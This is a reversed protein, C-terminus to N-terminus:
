VRIGACDRSDYPGPGTVSIPVIQPRRTTRLRRIVHQPFSPSILGYRPAYTDRSPLSHDVDM